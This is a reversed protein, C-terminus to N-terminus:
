ARARLGRMDCAVHRLRGSPQVACLPAHARRQRVGRPWCWFRVEFGVSAPLRSCPSCRSRSAGRRANCAPLLISQPAVGELWAPVFCSEVVPVQARQAAESSITALPGLTAVLSLARLCGMSSCGSGSGCSVKRAMSASAVASNTSSATFCPLASLRNTGPTGASSIRPIWGRLRALKPVSNM